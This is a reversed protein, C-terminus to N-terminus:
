REAVRTVAAWLWRRKGHQYWGTEDINAATGPLRARLEADAPALAETTRHQLKCVAAPSIPVGFLDACLRGVGRKGIRYAGSLLACVAQLRVGYGCRAAAPLPATSM